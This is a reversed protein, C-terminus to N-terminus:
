VKVEKWDLDFVQKPIGVDYLGELLFVYYGDEDGWLQLPFGEDDANFVLGPDKSLRELVETFKM